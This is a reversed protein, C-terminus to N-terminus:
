TTAPDELLGQLPGLGLVEDLLSDIVHGYDLRSLTIGSSKAYEDALSAIRSRVGKRDTIDIEHAHREVLLAHIAAKAATLTSPALRNTKQAVDPPQEAPAPPAEPRTGSIVTLGSERPATEASSQHRRADLRDKLAM